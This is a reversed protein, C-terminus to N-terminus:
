LCVRFALTDTEHAQQGDATRVLLRVKDVPTLDSKFKKNKLQLNGEDTLAVGFRATRAAFTTRRLMPLPLLLVVGIENSSKTTPLVSTSSSAESEHSKNFDQAPRVHWRMRM